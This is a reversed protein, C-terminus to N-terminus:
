SLAWRAFRAWTTRSVKRGASELANADGAAQATVLRAFGHPEGPISVDDEPPDLVILARVHVPGGKHLQGTSHLYRPGFGASTAVGAEEVLRRRATELIKETEASRPGYVLLCALEPPAIGDFLVAPDQAQWGAEDGADLAARAARKASEVDPQDFPNVGLVAGAIATAFEWLFMEGGLAGTDPVDLTVVPHGHEKVGAVFDDHPTSGGLKFHVFARDDGYTEPRPLPERVIPSIGKGSKGTSEAILQEVWDGFPEVTGPLLFTLKDRGEAALRGIATGVLLGPNEEPATATGCARAMDRAAALTSELDVGILAAPVLGFLSLASYRGGVDPPNTFTARFGEEAALKELSTGPDTIAVFREPPAAARFLKYLSMTEITSGSKSSVLFLTREGDLSTRAREVAAPHTSDLVTLRPRNPASGIVTAFVEPALSSGGMGLLAVDTTGDAAVEDAFAALESVLPQMRGPLDLWGLRASPDDEGPAWLSADKAWLRAVLDKLDADSM